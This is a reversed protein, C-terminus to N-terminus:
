RSFSFWDLITSLFGRRAPKKNANSPDNNTMAGPQKGATYNAMPPQASVGQMSGMQYGGQYGAPTQPQNPAYGQNPVMGPYATPPMGVVAQGGQGQQGQSDRVSGPVPMGTGSYAQPQPMNQQYQASPQLGPFNPAVSAVGLMSSFTNAAEESEELYGMEGRPRGPVRMNDLRPPVGFTSQKPGETFGQQPQYSAM